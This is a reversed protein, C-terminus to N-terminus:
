NSLTFRQVRRGYDTEAVYISGASDVAITHGHTFNGIQHGPRGFTALSGGSKHDLIEVKEWGGNMVYLYKQEQDPSFAVFWATGRSHTKEGIHISKIYEGMKNFVQIRDGFRDCVYIEGNNNMAICHVTNAFTGPTGGSIEEETSQRGWQRLFNGDEDFVVVRRNGYGDAIYIDGNDPDVVVASPRNLHEKGSNLAEAGLTGDSTDFVGKTGIQMLLEGSHSYKQAISDQNGAVWVNDGTDYFCAHIGIPVLNPDGFSNILEGELNFMMIPPAPIATETEEETINRRDVITIHDHSDVCVGGIQGNIWGSPLPKPFSPDVEFLPADQATLAGGCTLLLLVISKRMM